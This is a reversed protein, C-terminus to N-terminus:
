KNKPKQYRDLCYKLMCTEKFVVTDCMKQSMYQDSVSDTDFPCTDVAKDCIEHSKYYELVFKIASPHTGVAKNCM